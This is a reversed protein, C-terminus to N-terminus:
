AAAKEQLAIVNSPQEEAAKRRAEKVAEVAAPGVAFWKEADAPRVLERYNSFM